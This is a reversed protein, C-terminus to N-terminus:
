NSSPSYTRAKVYDYGPGPEWDSRMKGIVVDDLFIGSKRAAELSDALYEVTFAVEAVKAGAKAGDLTEGGDVVIKYLELLRKSLVKAGDTAERTPCVAAIEKQFDVMEKYVTGVDKRGADGKKLSEAFAEYRLARARTDEITSARARRPALVAAPTALTATHLWARRTTHSPTAPRSPTTHRLASAIAGLLALAKFMHMLAMSECSARVPPNNFNLSCDGREIKGM